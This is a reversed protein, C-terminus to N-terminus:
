GLLRRLFGTQPSRTDNRNWPPLEGHRDEYRELHRDELAKSSQMMGCRRYRYANPERRLHEVLRRRLNTSHGIYVLQGFCKLEYVGAANPVNAEINSRTARSWKKSIPM